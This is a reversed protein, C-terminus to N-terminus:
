LDSSSDSLSSQNANLASRSVEVSFGRGQMHKVFELERVHTETFFRYGDDARREAPTLIGHKEYYRIMGIGVGTRKALESIRMAQYALLRRCRKTCYGVGVLAQLHLPDNNRSSAPKFSVGPFEVHPQLAPVLDRLAVQGCPLCLSM